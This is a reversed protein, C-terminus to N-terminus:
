SFKERMSKLIKKEIRSVQVQSVGIKKAVESQTKDCFYRLTIIQKDRESLTNIIEKLVISDVIEDNKNDGKDLKDILYVSKGDNQYVTSYLSEVDRNADLALILEEVNINLQKAVENLNPSEGTKKIISDEIYKAKIAIEKLPRSVKIMGDDRLFRKIEGMIM